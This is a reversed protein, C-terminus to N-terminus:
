ESRGSATHLTHENAPAAKSENIGVFPSNLEAAGMNTVLWIVSFCMNISRFSSLFLIGKSIIHEWIKFQENIQKNILFLEVFQM